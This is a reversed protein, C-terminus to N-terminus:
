EYTYYKLEYRRGAPKYQHIILIIEEEYKELFDPVFVLFDPKPSSEDSFRVYINEEGEDSFHLPLAVGEREYYLKANKEELEVIDIDGARLRYKRRIVDEIAIGQGNASLKLKCEKQLARFRAYLWVLPTLLARIIASLVGGRLIPPLMADAFKHVDFNYWM